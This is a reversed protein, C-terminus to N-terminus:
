ATRAITLVRRGSTNTWDNDISSPRVIWLIKARAVRDPRSRRTARTLDFSAQSAEGANGPM